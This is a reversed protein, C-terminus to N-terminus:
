QVSHQGGSGRPVDLRGPCIFLSWLISPPLPLSFLSQKKELPKKWALLFQFTLERQNLRLLLQWPM